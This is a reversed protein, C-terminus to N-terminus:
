TLLRGRWREQEVIEGHGLGSIGSPGRALKQRRKTDKEREQDRNAGVRPNVGSRFRLHERIRFSHEDRAIRHVGLDCGGIEVEVVLVVGLGGVVVAM